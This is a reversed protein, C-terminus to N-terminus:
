KMHLKIIRNVQQLCDGAERLRASVAKRADQDTLIDLSVNFGAGISELDKGNNKEWIHAIREYQHIISDIFQLQPNLEKVRNLFQAACCGNTAMNCINSTYMEWKRFAAPEMQDFYGNEIQTAWTYFADPGCCFKENRISFLQPIAALANRYVDALEITHTKEGIFVWGSDLGADIAADASICDPQSLNDTLLLLNQGEDEYGVYVGWPPWQGKISIVPIGQNIFDVLKALYVDKHARLQEKSVYTSEYGCKLFISRISQGGEYRYRCTSLCDGMYEDYSFVQTLIDGTLGAFFWYGFDPEDIFEGLSEMVYRACGNFWYNEGYENTIFRHINPILHRGQKAMVLESRDHNESPTYPVRMKAICETRSAYFAKTLISNRSPQAAIIM